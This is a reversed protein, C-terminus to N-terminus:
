KELKIEIATSKSMPLKKLKELSHLEICHMWLTSLDVALALMIRKSELKSM